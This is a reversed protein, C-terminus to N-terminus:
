VLFQKIVFCYMRVVENNSIRISQAKREFLCCQGIEKFYEKHIPQRPLLALHFFSIREKQFNEYAPIQNGESALGMQQFFHPGSESDALSIVQRTKLLGSIALAVAVKKASQQPPLCLFQCSVVRQRLSVKDTISKLKLSHSFRSMLQKTMIKGALEMQCSMLNFPCQLSYKSPKLKRQLM